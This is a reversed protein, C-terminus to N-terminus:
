FNSFYNEVAMGRIATFDPPVPYFSRVRTIVQFDFTVECKRTMVDNVFSKTM